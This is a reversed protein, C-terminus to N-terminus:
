FAGASSVKQGITQTKAEQEAKAIRLQNRDGLRGISQKRDPDM